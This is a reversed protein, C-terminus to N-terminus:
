GMFLSIVGSHFADCTFTYDLLDQFALCGPIGEVEYDVVIAIRLSAQQVLKHYAPLSLSGLTEVRPDTCLKNTMEHRCKSANM